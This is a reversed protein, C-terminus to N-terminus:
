YRILKLGMSWGALFLLALEMVRYAFKILFMKIFKRTDFGKKVTKKKTKKKM